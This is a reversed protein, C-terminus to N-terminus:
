LTEYGNHGSGKQHAGLAAPHATLGCETCRRRIKNAVRAARARDESLKAAFEPDSQARENAEQVARRLNEASVQRLHQDFEPDEVRRQATYQALQQGVSRMKAAFESDTQRLHALYEVQRIGLDHLAERLQESMKLDFARHCKRCMPAYASLDESYVSGNEYLPEGTYQYAWDWAPEGCSVCPHSNAPGHKRVLKGHVTNYRM